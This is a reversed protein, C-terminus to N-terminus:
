AAQSDLIENVKKIIKDAVALSFDADLAVELDKCAEVYEAEFNNEVSKLNQLIAKDEDSMDDKVEKHEAEIAKQHEESKAEGNKVDEFDVDIVHSFSQGEGSEAVNDLQVAKQLDPSKPVRKSIRKVATKVWMNHVEDPKNWPSHSSNKAASKSKAADAIKQDVVEFDVGGTIFFVICYAHTLRGRDNDEPKHKLTQNVGYEYDFVDAQYVPHATVSRVMSSKYMLEILGKYDPILQVELQKTRENKFPVLHALGLPGGIELGIVSAEVVANMLSLQSCRALKPNMTISTFAMRLMREPTLHKPLVSKIAQINSGLLSRVDKQEKVTLATTMTREKKESLIQQYLKLSEPHSSNAWIQVVGDFDYGAWSGEERPQGQAVPLVKFASPFQISLDLIREKFEDSKTIISPIWPDNM